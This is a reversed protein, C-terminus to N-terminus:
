EKQLYRNRLGQCKTKHKRAYQNTKTNIDGFNKHLRVILDKEM